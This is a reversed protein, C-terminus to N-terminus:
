LRSHCSFFKEEMKLKKRFTEASRWNSELDEYLLQNYFRGEFNIKIKDFNKLNYVSWVLSILISIILLLYEFKNKQYVKFMKEKLFSGYTKLISEKLNSKPRWGYKKAISIDMVKRPTGNPKSRDFVIDIKKSPLIIESIM